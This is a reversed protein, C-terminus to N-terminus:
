RSGEGARDGMPPPLPLQDDPVASWAFAAIKWGLETRLLTVVDVGGHSFEGDIWFDYPAWVLAIDGEVLVTPEWMREFYSQKGEASATRGLHEEFTRVSTTIPGSRRTVSSMAGRDLLLEGWMRAGEEGQAAIADFSRQVVAVVADRDGDQDRSLSGLPQL